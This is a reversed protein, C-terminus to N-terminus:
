WVFNEEQKLATEGARRAVNELGNNDPELGAVRSVGVIEFGCGGRMKDNCIKRIRVQRTCSTTGRHVVMVNGNRLIHEANPM